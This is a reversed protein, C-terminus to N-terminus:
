IFGDGEQTTDASGGSNNQKLFNQIGSVIKPNELATTILNEAMGPEREEQESGQGLLGSIANLKDQDLGKILNLVGGITEMPSTPGPARYPPGKTDLGLDRRMKKFQIDYKKKQTDLGFKFNEKKFWNHQLLQVTCIMGVTTILSVIIFAEDM